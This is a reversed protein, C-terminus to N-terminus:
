GELDLRYLRSANRWMIAEEVPPDLRVPIAADPADFDWHPYDTAFILHDNMGMQALLRQFQGPLPPEEMPQTTIWFHDRIYESPSRRLWPVELALRRHAADLRWMLSPLWAFGGEILVFQLEPFREFVGECVLSIVQSQYAMPWGAHDEFYFSHFGAGSVPGGGTGGVHIGIPLHHREAAEYMPWYKRRGLPEATRITLLVQAFRRDEGLRDIERAALEGDEHAVALSGRLRPEPELWEELQWDNVASAMAAGLELNRIGGTMFLPNLIGISIGWADLLQERLFDLDSGPPGGNPPWSDTRAAFRNARPYDAGSYGRSGFLELHQRWAPSLYRRIALPSATHVHIDGDVIPTRATRRTTKHGAVETSM